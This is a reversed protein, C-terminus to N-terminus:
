KEIPQLEYDTLHTNIIKLKKAEKSKFRSEILDVVYYTIVGISVLGMIAIVAWKPKSKPIERDKKIIIM